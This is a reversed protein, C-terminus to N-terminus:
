MRMVLDLLMDREALTFDRCLAIRQRLDVSTPTRRFVERLPIEPNVQLAEIMEPLTLRPAEELVEFHCGEHKTDFDRLHQLWPKALDPPVHAMTCILIHNSTADSTM